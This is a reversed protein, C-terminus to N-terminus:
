NVIFAQEFNAVDRVHHYAAIGSVCPNEINLSLQISILAM